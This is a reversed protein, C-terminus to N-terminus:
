ISNEFSNNKFVIKHFRNNTFVFSNDITTQVIIQTIILLHKHVKFIVKFLVKM